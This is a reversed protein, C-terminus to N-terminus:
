KPRLRRSFVPGNLANWYLGIAPGTGTEVPMAGAKIVSASTNSGFTLEIENQEYAGLSFNETYVAPGDVPGICPSFTRTSKLAYGSELRLKIVFGTATYEVQGRFGTHGVSSLKREETNTGSNTKQLLIGICPLGARGSAIIKKM